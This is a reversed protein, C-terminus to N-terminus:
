LIIIASITHVIQASSTIRPHIDTVKCINSGLAITSKIYFGVNQNQLHFSSMQSPKAFTLYFSSSGLALRTKMLGTM